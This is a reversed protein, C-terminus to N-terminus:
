PGPTDTSTVLAGGVPAGAAIRAQIVRMVDVGPGDAGIEEHFTLIAGGAEIAVDLDREPQPPLPRTAASQTWFRSERLDYALKRVEDPSLAWREVPGESGCHVMVADDYVWREFGPGRSERYEFRFPRSAPAGQQMRILEAEVGGAMQLAEVVEARVEALTKGMVQNGVADLSPADNIVPSSLSTDHLREYGGQGARVLFLLWREGQQPKPDAGGLRLVFPNEIPRGAWQEVIQLSARGDPLVERVRAVLVAESRATWDTIGAQDRLNVLCAAAGIPARAEPKSCGTLLPAALACLILSNSIIQRAKM